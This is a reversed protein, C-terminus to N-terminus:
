ILFEHLLPQPFQLYPSTVGTLDQIRAYMHVDHYNAQVFNIM